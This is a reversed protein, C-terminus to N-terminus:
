RISIPFGINLPIHEGAGVDVRGNEIRKGGAFDKDGLEAIWAESWGNTILQRYNATGDDGDGADRAL